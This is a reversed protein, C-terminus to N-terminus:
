DVSCHDSRPRPESIVRDTARKLCRSDIEWEKLSNKIIKRQDLKKYVGTSRRGPKKTNHERLFISLM